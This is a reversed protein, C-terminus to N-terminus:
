SLLVVSTLIDWRTHQAVFIWIGLISCYKWGMTKEFDICPENILMLKYTSGGPLPATKISAPHQDKWSRGFMTELSAEIMHNHDLTICSSSIIVRTGFYFTMEGIDHVVLNYDRFAKVIMAYANPNCTGVGFNDTAKMLLIPSDLIRGSFLSPDGRTPYLNVSALIKWALDDWAKSTTRGQVYSYMEIALNRSWDKPDDGFMGCFVEYQKSLRERLMEIWELFIPDM